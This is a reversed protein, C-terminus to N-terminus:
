LAQTIKEGVADKEGDNYKKTPWRPMNDDNYRPMLHIHFHPMEQGVVSMQVFDCSAGNKIALMLKKTLIFIQAITEDEAEQM